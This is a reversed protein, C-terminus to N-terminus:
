SPQKYSDPLRRCLNKNWCLLQICICSRNLSSNFHFIFWEQTLYGYQYRNGICDLCPKGRHQCNLMLYQFFPLFFVSPVNIVLWIGTTMFALEQAGVPSTSLQFLTHALQEVGGHNGLPKWVALAWLQSQRPCGLSPSHWPGWTLWASCTCDQVVPFGDPVSDHPWCSM